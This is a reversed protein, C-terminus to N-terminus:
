ATLKQPDQASEAGIKIKIATQHCGDLLEKFTASRCFRLQQQRGAIEGPIGQCLDHILAHFPDLMEVIETQIKLSPIPVKFRSLPKTTLYPVSGYALAQLQPRMHSLLHFLYRESARAQDIITCSYNNNTRFYKGKCWTLQGSSGSEIIGLPADETNWQDTYGAIGTARGIVPFPGPHAQIYKKSLAKGTKLKCIAGLAKSPVDSAFTLLQRRHYHYRQM